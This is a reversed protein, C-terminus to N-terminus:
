KEKSLLNNNAGLEPALKAAFVKQQNIRVPQTPFPRNKINVLLNKEQAYSSEALEKLDWISSVPIGAEDLYQCAEEVTFNAMWNEIIQKLAKQNQCRRDDSNFRSDAALEPQGIATALREFLSNNAVAIIVLGDKAQYNDFPASLPHRNGIAKPAQNSVVMKSLNTIQMSFLCDLMSIDLHAGQRSPDKERNYLAACISWAAFLGAILDGMSEGVRTPSGGETGTVSMIGSMAQVIIDYAPKHALSGSQGFGSISCYILDPHTQKITEADIKLRKTVGPRFNEVIVDAQDCLQYFHSLDKENKLDLTLSLKGRNLMEFYVSKDELFPGIHRSDDGSSSEIKIVKAGLDTLLSTCYPGALVRSLDLITIGDLLMM